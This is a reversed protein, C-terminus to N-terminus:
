SCVVHVTFSVKGINASLVSVKSALFGKIGHM